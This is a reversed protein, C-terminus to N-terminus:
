SGFSNVLLLLFVLCFLGAQVIAFGVAWALRVGRTMGGSAWYNTASIFAVFAVLGVIAPTYGAVKRNAHAIAYPLFTLAFIALTGSVSLLPSWPAKNSM